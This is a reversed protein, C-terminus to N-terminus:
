LPVCEMGGKIILPLSGALCPYTFTQNFRARIYENCGLYSPALPETLSFQLKLQETESRDAGSFFISIM